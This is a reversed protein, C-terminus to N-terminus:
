VVEDGEVAGDEFQGDPDPPAEQSVLVRRIDISWSAFADPQLYTNTRSRISDSLSNYRVPQCTWQYRFQDWLATRLADYNLSPHSSLM